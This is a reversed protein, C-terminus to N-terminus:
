QRQRRRRERLEAFAEALVLADADARHLRTDALHTSLWISDGPSAATARLLPLADGIRWRRRRGVAQYLRDAWFAEWQPADSFAVNTGFATDLAAAVEDIPHGLREIDARTIGHIGQAEVSWDLWDPAPRVLIARSTVSGDPLVLAWGVEIPYSAPSLSSAEVDFFITPLGESM